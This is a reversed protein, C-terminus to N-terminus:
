YFEEVFQDNEVRMIDRSPPILKERRQKPRGRGKPADDPAAEEVEVRWYEIPISADVAKETHLTGDKLDWFAEQAKDYVYEEPRALRRQGASARLLEAERAATREEINM